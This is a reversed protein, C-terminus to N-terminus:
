CGKPSEKALASYAARCENRLSDWRDKSSLRARWTFIDREYLMAFQWSTSACLVRRDLKKLEAYCEPFRDRALKSQSISGFLEVDTLAQKRRHLQQVGSYFESWPDVRLPRPGHPVSALDKEEIDPAIRMLLERSGYSGRCLDDLVDHSEGNSVFEAAVEHVGQIFNVAWRKEELTARKSDVLLEGFRFLQQCSRPLEKSDLVYKFRLKPADGVSAAADVTGADFPRVGPEVLAIHEDQLTPEPPPEARDRRSFALWTAVVVLPIGLAIAFLWRRPVFSRANPSSRFWRSSPAPLPRAFREAMVRSLMLPGDARASACAALDSIADEARRYRDSRSRQLLKLAVRELDRPVEPRIESPRPVTGFLVAALSARTDDAGFLRRGTLLEWLIVGVAFLDSRGDLPESNAQEPSM